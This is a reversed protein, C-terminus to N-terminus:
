FLDNMKREALKRYYDKDVGKDDFGCAVCFYHKQHTVFGCFKCIYESPSPAPKALPKRELLLAVILGAFACVAAASVIKIKLNLVSNYIGDELVTGMFISRIPIFGAGYKAFLIYGVVFGCFGSVLTLLLIRFLKM